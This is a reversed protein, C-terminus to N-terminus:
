QELRHLSFASPPNNSAILLLDDAGGGRLVSHVTAVPGLPPLSVTGLAGLDTIVRGDGDLFTVTPSSAVNGAVAVRGECTVAVLDGVSDAFAGRPGLVASFGGAGFSLDPAGDRTFRVVVATSSADSYVPSAAGSVVWRGADDRALARVEFRRPAQEAVARAAAPWNRQRGAGDLRLLQPQYQPSMCALVYDDGDPALDFCGVVGSLDAVGRVGFTEDLEGAETVRAAWARQSEAAWHGGDNVLLTYGRADAAAAFAVVGRAASLRGRTLIFRGGSAFTADLAGDPSLRVLLADNNNGVRSEHGFVLLRGARDTLGGFAESFARSTPAPDLTAGDTGFSDDLELTDAHFRWAALRAVPAAEAGCRQCQGVVILRGEADMFGGRAAPTTLVDGPTSVGHQSSRAVSVVGRRPCRAGDPSAVADQPPAADPSADAHDLAADAQFRGTLDSCGGTLAM